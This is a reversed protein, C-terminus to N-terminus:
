RGTASFRRFEHPRPVHLVHVCDDLRVGVVIVTAEGTVVTSEVAESAGVESSVDEPSSVTFPTGDPLTGETCTQLSNVGADFAKRNDSANRHFIVEEEFHLDQSVDSAASGVVDTPTVLARANPNGCPDETENGPTFTVETFDTGIDAATLLRDEVGEPDVFEASTSSSSKSSSSEDSSQDTTNTATAVNNEDDDDRLFLFAAVAIAVAAYRRRGPHDM